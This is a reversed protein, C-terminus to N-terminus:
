GAIKLLPYIMIGIWFFFGGIVIFRSCVYKKTYHDPMELKKLKLFIVYQLIILFALIACLFVIYPTTGMSPALYQTALFVLFLVVLPILNYTRLKSFSDVLAMKEEQNLTKLARESIIRSVVICLLLVVIGVNSLDNM